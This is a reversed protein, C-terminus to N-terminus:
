ELEYKKVLEAWKPSAKLNKLGTNLMDLLEIDENRVAIGYKEETEITGLFDIDKGKILQKVVPADYIVADATGNGLAALALPFSDYVALKGADLIGTDVYESKIWSDATSGRRTAIKAKGTTVDDLTFTSGNNVAVGLNTIWYVDSFSVKNLRDPTITMGGYYMDIEKDLIQPIIEDLTIPKFKVVFGQDESIWKACEVDFGQATKESDIYSYPPNEFDIGVIYVNKEVAVETPAGSQTETPAATPNDTNAAPAPTATAASQQTGTCGAFVAALVALAIICVSLIKKDMNISYTLYM